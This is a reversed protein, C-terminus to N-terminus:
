NLLGKLPFKTTSTPTDRNLWGGIELISNRTGRFLIDDVGTEGERHFPTRASDHFGGHFVVQTEVQSRRSVNVGDFLNELTVVLSAKCESLRRKCPHLRNKVDANPGAELAM